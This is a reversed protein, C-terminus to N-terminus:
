ASASWFSSHVNPTPLEQKSYDYGNPESTPPAVSSPTVCPTTVEFFAQGAYGFKISAQFGDASAYYAASKDPAHARLKFGKSLWYREVLGMFSERRHPSIITMVARIRDTSCDRPPTVRHTWEVPPKIAALTEDLLADAKDAAQQMNMNNSEM